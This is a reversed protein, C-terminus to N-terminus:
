FYCTLYPWRFFSSLCYEFHQVDGGDLLSVASKIFYFWIDIEPLWHLISNCIFTSLHGSCTWINVHNTTFTVDFNSVFVAYTLLWRSFTVLTSWKFTCGRRSWTKECSQNLILLVSRTIQFTYRHCQPRTCLWKVCTRVPAYCFYRFLSAYWLFSMRRSYTFIASAVFYLMWGDM